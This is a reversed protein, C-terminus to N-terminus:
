FFWLIVSFFADLFHAASSENVEVVSSTMGPFLSGFPFPQLYENSTYIYVKIQEIKRKLLLLHKNVVTKLLLCM